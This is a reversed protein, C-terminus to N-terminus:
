VYAGDGDRILVAVRGARGKVQRAWKSDLAEVAAKDYDGRKIHRLMNKFSLLGGIGMNFTMNVLARRRPESLRGWWPVHKDLAQIARALDNHFMLGIEDDSLGVDTLNRGIGITLKGVTDTYPMPRVGEDRELEAQMKIADIM